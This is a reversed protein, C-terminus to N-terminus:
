PVGESICIKKNSEYISRNNKHNDAAMWPTIQPGNKGSRRSQNKKKSFSGFEACIRLTPAKPGLVITSPM